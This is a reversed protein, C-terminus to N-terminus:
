PASNLLQKTCTLTLWSALKKSLERTEKRREEERAYTYRTVMEHKTGVVPILTNAPPHPHPPLYLVNEFWEKNQQDTKNIM